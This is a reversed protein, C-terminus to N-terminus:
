GEIVKELDPSLVFDGSPLMFLEMVPTGIV